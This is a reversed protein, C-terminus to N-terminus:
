HKISLRTSLVDYAPILYRENLQVEEIANVIEPNRGDFYKEDLTISQHTPNQIRIIFKNKDYYSPHCATVLYEEPLKLMELRNSANLNKESRQIKNDIRHLFYNYVQLQYDINGEIYRNNRVATEHENFAKDGVFVAFAFEHKGILQANPTPILVHGKKTTDGSARGPRYLLDSKGLQGTTALLTIAITDDMHQYEKIGKTYITCCENPTTISVNQVLPEIDVPMENNTEAWNEPCHNERQIYGFLVSAINTNTHIGSKVHIRLRHSFIQNDVELHCEILESSKQLTIILRAKLDGFNTETQRDELDLPLKYDGELILRETTNSTEAYAQEFSLFRPKDDPLPSFDYTDGANSINELQIFSSVKEGNPKMLVIDRNEFLIQYYDNGISFSNKQQIQELPKESTSFAIVKYGLGPLKMEIRVKLIFYGPEEIYIIGASTEQLINERAEIYNEELITANPYEPFSINKDKTVVQIDKYGNFPHAETNFVIIEQDTLRLNDAIKKVITNEISAAM